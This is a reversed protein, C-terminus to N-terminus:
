GHSSAPDSRAIRGLLEWSVVTASFLLVITGSAFLNLDVAIRMAMRVSTYILIGFGAITSFHRRLALL